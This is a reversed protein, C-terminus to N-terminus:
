RWALPRLSYLLDHIFIFQEICLPDVSPPFVAIEKIDAGEDTFLRPKGALSFKLTVSWHGVNADLTLSVRESLAISKWM